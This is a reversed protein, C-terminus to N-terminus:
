RHLLSEVIEANASAMRSIAMALDEDIIRRRQDSKLRQTLAKVQKQLEMRRRWERGLQEQLQAKTVRTRPM